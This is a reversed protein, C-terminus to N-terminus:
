YASGPFFGDQDLPVKIVKALQENDPSRSIGTSLVLLDAALNLKEALIPDYAEIKLLDEPTQGATVKPKNELDYNVFIVGEQRAQQYYKERFGYTRIDRYFIIVNTQPNLQKIRLANKIAEACCVRSCYMKDGERSGVCQIMAVTKASSIQARQSEDFLKAELEKQTLVRDSQGRLYEDTEQETAGTAVIVAGHEINKKSAKGNTSALTTKYNGMYGSLSEVITNLHVDINKCAKIQEITNRMLEQPDDGSLTSHLKRLNGGLEKDKEVLYVKFGQQGLSIAATMGAIGGGVVLAEKRVSFTSSRVPRLLRAKSIAMAVLEKAKETALGKEAMHVWSCHERISIFELLFQNLGVERITDQFLAEHTRPTCSAIVIRNLRHKEIIEKIKEQADQSCTYLNHECYTVNPLTKTFEVVDEVKVVGGINIGCHCVFVGIRPPEDSVDREPPYEKTEILTGRVDALLEAARGAAASAEIVTEPIDKPESVAGCAYIGERSTDENAFAKTEVFNYENLCIAAADKLKDVNKPPILATSLVVIDYKDKQFKGQEDLYGLQLEGNNDAKEVVPSRCRRYVVKYEDKAREYYRDFGKGFARMDMYYIDTDLEGESHEKAVIAEKTAHMCCVASCYQNCELDRSGVCQLFAIRKPEKHDSPRVLHGKYPGSASLMREFEPATVVNAFRQYNYELRNDPYYRDYGPALIVAGVKLDVEKDEQEFDIAKADCVAMCTQCNGTQFYVCHEKDISPTNPVAQPFAVSVVPRPGIGLDFVSPLPSTGRECFDEPKIAGTPCIFGCAGCGMCTKSMADFPPIVERKFGRNAFGIIGKGMRESCIRVCLGCLICKENRRERKRIRTETVGLEAALSKIEESEPSQALLLELIVNRSKIVQETDTYVKLGEQVPYICSTQIRKRRGDDIEVLCLRCGGYPSLAKHYCLTPIKVGITQAAELITTGEEAQVKQDNITFKVM